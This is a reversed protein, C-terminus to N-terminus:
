LLESAFDPAHYNQPPHCGATENGSIPVARSHGRGECAILSAILTVRASAPKM